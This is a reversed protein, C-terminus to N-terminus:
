KSEIKDIKLDKKLDKKVKKSNKKDIHFIKKPNLKRFKKVAFKDIQKDIPAPLPEDKKFPVKFLRLAKNSM